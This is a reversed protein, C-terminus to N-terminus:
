VTLRLVVEAPLVVLWITMAIVSLVAVATVEFRNTPQVVPTALRCSRLETAASAAPAASM